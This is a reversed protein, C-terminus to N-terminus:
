KDSYWYAVVVDSKSTGVEIESDRSPINSKIIIDTNKSFIPKNPYFYNIHSGFDQQIKTLVINGAMITKIYYEKSGFFCIDRLSEYFIKIQNTLEIDNKFFFDHKNFDNFDFRYKNCDFNELGFDNVLEHLKQVNYSVEIHLRCALYKEDTKEQSETALQEVIKNGLGSIISSGLIILITILITTVVLLFSVPNKWLEIWYKKLEEVTM